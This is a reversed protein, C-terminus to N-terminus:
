HPLPAELAGQPPPANFYLIRGCSSCNHIGENHKVDVFVQPRLKVHCMTCSGDKAESLATGRMKAIREYDARREPNLASLRTERSSAAAARRGRVEAISADIVAIEDRRTSEVSKFASEEAKVAAQGGEVKEMAELIQDERGRIERDMTEIEHLLASYEKNTKVEGLQGKYKSRKAEFDQVELELKKRNKALTDLDAKAADLAARDALLKAEIEAKKKPLRELEADLRRLELDCHHLDVLTELDPHM